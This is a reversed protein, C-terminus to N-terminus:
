ASMPSPSGSRRRSSGACASPGSRAPGCRSGATTGSPSRWGRRSRCMRSTRPRTPASWVRRPRRRARDVDGTEERFSGEWGGVEAPHSRLHEVLTADSPQAPAPEWEVRIADLAHGAARPDSAVVGVFPGERVVTVGALAEADGTDVSRLVAGFAPPRLIAGHRLGPRRLDSAFRRTGTVTEASGPRVDAGPLVSLPWRSERMPVVRVRREDRVLEGFTLAGPTGRRRIEGDSTELDAPDVEWRDVVAALLVDRTAAAAARLATGADPMSRSGYTGLDFPCVDTDGMVLRVADLRLGLEAAVLVRLATRNDQGVNVKGTFATVVGDAGVHIWADRTTSWSREDEPRPDLVVVLGEPLM